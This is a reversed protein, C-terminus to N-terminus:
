LESRSLVRADEFSVVDDEIRVGVRGELYIGPEVTFVNGNKARGAAGPAITPREGGSGGMTVGLGHGTVTTFNGYYGSEKIVNRAASDIVSLKVGARSLEIAKRQAETVINHINEFEASHGGVQYTRTVDSCYGRYFAGCDLVVWDHDKVRRDSVFHHPHASNEGSAVMTDFTMMQAGSRRAERDIEAAIEVETYGPKLLEREAYSIVGVVIECAKAICQIEEDNKQERLKFIFDDLKLALGPLHEPTDSLLRRVRLKRLVRCIGARVLSESPVRNPLLLYEHITSLSRVRPKELPYALAVIDGTKPIILSSVPLFRPIHACSLYKVNGPQNILFAENGTERLRRQVKEWRQEYTQKDFEAFSM